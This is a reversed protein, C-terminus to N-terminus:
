VHSVSWNSKTNLTKCIYRWGRNSNYYFTRPECSEVFIRQSTLYCDPVSCRLNTVTGSKPSPGTGDASFCSDYYCKLELDDHTYETPLKAPPM